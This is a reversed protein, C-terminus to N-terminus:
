RRALQARVFQQWRRRGSSGALPRDREWSRQVLDGGGRRARRHLQAASITALRRPPQRDGRPPQPPQQVARRIQILLHHFRRHAHRAPTRLRERLRAPERRGVWPCFSGGSEPGWEPGRKAIGSVAVLQARVVLQVAASRKRCERTPVIFESRRMATRRERTRRANSALAAAPARLQLSGDGVLTEGERSAALTLGEPPPM